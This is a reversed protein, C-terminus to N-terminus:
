GNSVYRHGREGFEAIVDCFFSSTVVAASRDREGAIAGDKRDVSNIVVAIAVALAM